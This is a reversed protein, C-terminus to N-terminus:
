RDSISRPASGDGDAHKRQVAQRRGQAGGPHDYISFAYGHLMTAWQGFSGHIGEHPSSNPQWSTGSGDRQMPYDGLAGNAGTQENPGTGLPPLESEDPAATIQAVASGSIATALAFLLAGAGHCAGARM